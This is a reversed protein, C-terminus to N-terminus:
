ALTAQMKDRHRILCGCFSASPSLNNAKISLRHQETAECKAPCSIRATSIVVCGPTMDAMVTLLAVDFATRTRVAANAVLRLLYVARNEKLRKIQSLVLSSNSHHHSEPARDAFVRITYGGHHKEGVVIM